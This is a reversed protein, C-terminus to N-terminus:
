DNCEGDFNFDMYIYRDFDYDLCAKICQKAKDSVNSIRNIGNSTKVLCDIYRKKAGINVCYKDKILTDSIKVDLSEQWIKFCNSINFKNCNRIREIVDKESLEYLDSISILNANSMRKMIDGLFQMGFRRKDETYIVSLESMVKTFREAINLDDFCMELEKNENEVITIHKYIERVDELDWIKKIQGLANIFTYELRDASLKPIDNDAISYIHYNSVEEVKINDRMLLSIIEDSELILAETLDETSEQTNADGNMYDICHKFVPTSIDHFLGALTQKKDHTFNWIILAVAISHSLTSYWFDVKFMKSYIMGCSVSINDLKMMRPTNIYDLLFDPFESSLISYYEKITPNLSELYNSM